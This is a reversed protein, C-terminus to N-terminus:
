SLLVWNKLTCGRTFWGAELAFNHVWPYHVACEWPEPVVCLQNPLSPCTPRQPTHAHYFHM